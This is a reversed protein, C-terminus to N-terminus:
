WEEESLQRFSRAALRLWAEQEPDPTDDCSANIRALLNQNEQRRLFDEIALAFVKSRSVNMESAAKEVKSFLTQDLSIATKVNAM